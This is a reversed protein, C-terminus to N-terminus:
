RTYAGVQETSNSLCRGTSELLGHEGTVLLKLNFGTCCLADVFDALHKRAESGGSKILADVADLVLLIQCHIMPVPIIVRVRLKLLVCNGARRPSCRPLSCPSALTYTYLYDNIGLVSRRGCSTVRADDVIKANYRKWNNFGYALRM